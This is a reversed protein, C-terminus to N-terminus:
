YVSDGLLSAEGQRKEIFIEPGKIKELSFLSSTGLIPLVVPFCMNKIGTGMGWTPYAPTYAKCFLAYDEYTRGTEPISTAKEGRESKQVKCLNRGEKSKASLVSSIM